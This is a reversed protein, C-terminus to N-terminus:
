ALRSEVLPQPAGPPRLPGPERDPPGAGAVLGCVLGVLAGVVHAAPVPVFAGAHSRVFWLGGTLLEYGLKALLAGTLLTLLLRVQVGGQPWRQRLLRGCLLAYLAVDLGSLGAYAGLGPHTLMVVPPIALASALLTLLFSRRGARECLVGLLLFTLADWFVHDWSWHVLHCSLLRWWQGHALAGPVYALARTADPWLQLLLSLAAVSPSLGPLGGVTWRRTEQSRPGMATEEVARTRGVRACCAAGSWRGAASCSCGWRTSPGAAAEV